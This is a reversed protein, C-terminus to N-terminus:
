FSVIIGLKILTDKFHVNKTPSTFTARSSNVGFSADIVTNPLYTYEGGFEIHYNSSSEDSGYVSIEEDYSPKFLFDLVAYLRVLRRIPIDGKVGVLLGKFSTEVFGNTSDQSIKYSYKGYGMYGDIRPGYFHGFPLYRYGMKFKYIGMSTSGLADSRGERKSLYAFRQEIVLATWYNRTIWLEGSINVGFTVGGIKNITDTALTATDSSSGLITSIGVSGLKGFEYGKTDLKSELDSYISDGKEVGDGIRKRKVKVWDNIKVRKKSYYDDVKIHSMKKTVHFISGTGIRELEWDVIEKLLPHQKKSLPRNIDIRDGKRLGFDSGVGITFNSGLVGNILGIYPIHGNYKELWNEVTRAILIFDNSSLLSRKKFYIDVGNSGVVELTVDIGKIQNVLKIRILSGANGKEAIVKLVKRDQLYVHLNKKYNGLINMIESNSKYYCWDNKKLYKEVEEFVQFGLAGGISDKVPLLM